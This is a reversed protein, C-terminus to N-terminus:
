FNNLIMAEIIMVRSGKESNEQYTLLQLNMIDNIKIWEGTPWVMGLKVCHKTVENFYRASVKTNIDNAQEQDNMENM